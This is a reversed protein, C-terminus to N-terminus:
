LADVLDKGGSGQVWEGLFQEVDSDADGVIALVADGRVGSGRAFFAHGVGHKVLQLRHDAHGIFGVFEDGAILDLDVLLELGWEGVLKKRKKRVEFVQVSPWYIEM